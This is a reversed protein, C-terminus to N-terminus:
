TKTQIGSRQLASTNAVCKVHLGNDIYRVVNVRKLEVLCKFGGIKIRSM